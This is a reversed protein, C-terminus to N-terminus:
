IKKYKKNFIYFDSLDQKKYKFLNKYDMFRGKTPISNFLRIRILFNRKLVNNKILAIKQKKNDLDCFNIYKNNINNIKIKKFIGRHNIEKNNYINVYIIFFIIEYIRKKQNRWKRMDFKKQYKNIIWIGKEVEIINIENNLIINPHLDFEKFNNNPVGIILPFQLLGFVLISAFWFSIGLLGFVIYLIQNSILIDLLIFLISFLFCFKLILIRNQNYYKDKKM